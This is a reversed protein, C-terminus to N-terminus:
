GVEKIQWGGGHKKAIPAVLVFRFPFTQAAMKIKAKADDQIFSLSGKVERIEITGDPLMVSFDPSFHLDKALKFKIGEFSWWLIEGVIRKHELYESYARETKNMEGSKLRGKGFTKTNRKFM